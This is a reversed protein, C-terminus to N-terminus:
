SYPRDAPTTRQPAGSHGTHEDYHPMCSALSSNVATRPSRTRVLIPPPPACPGNTSTNASSWGSGALPPPDTRLRRRRTATSQSLNHLPLRSRRLSTPSALHSLLGCRLRGCSPSPSRAIVRAAAGFTVLQLGFRASRRTPHRAFRRRLRRACSSPPPARLRPVSPTVSPCPPPPSPGRAALCLSPSPPPVSPPFSSAPPPHRSGFAFPPAEAPSGPIATTRSPLDNPRLQDSGCRRAPPPSPPASRGRSSNSM